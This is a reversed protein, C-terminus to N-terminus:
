KKFSKAFLTKLIIMKEMLAKCISNGRGPLCETGDKVQNGEKEGHGQNECGKRLSAEGIM